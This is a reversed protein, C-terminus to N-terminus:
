VCLPSIVAGFHSPYCSLFLKLISIKAIWATQRYKLAKSRRVIGGFLFSIENDDM